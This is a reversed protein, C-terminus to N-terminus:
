AQLQFNIFLVLQSQQHSSGPIIKRVSTLLDDGAKEGVVGTRFLAWSIPDIQLRRSSFAPSITAESLLTPPHSILRM